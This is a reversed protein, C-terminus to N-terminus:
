EQEIKQIKVDDQCKEVELRLPILSDKYHIVFFGCPEQRPQSVSFNIQGNRFVKQHIFATDINLDKMSKEAAPSYTKERFRIESLVRGNPLYNNIYQTCSSRQGFFLIVLFIGALSGIGFFKYRDVQRM